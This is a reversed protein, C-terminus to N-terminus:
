ALKIYGNTFGNAEAVERNLRDRQTMGPGTLFNWVRGLLTAAIVARLLPKRAADWQKLLEAPTEPISSVDVAAAPATAAASAAANEAVATNAENEPKLATVM